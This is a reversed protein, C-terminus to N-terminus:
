LDWAASCSYQRDDYSGDEEFARLRAMDRAIRASRGGFLDRLVRLGKSNGLNEWKRGGKEGSVSSDKIVKRTALALGRGNHRSVARADNEGARLNSIVHCMQDMLEKWRDENDEKISYLWPPINQLFDELLHSIADIDASCPSIDDDALQGSVSELIANIQNFGTIFGPFCSLLAVIKLDFHVMGSALEMLRNVALTSKLHQDFWTASRTAAHLLLADVSNNRLNSELLKRVQNQRRKVSNCM